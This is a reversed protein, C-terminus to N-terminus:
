FQQMALILQIKDEPAILRDAMPYLVREERLDHSNFLDEPTTPESQLMRTIAECSEWELAKTLRALIERFRAHETRMAATPGADRMGTREEIAPFLFQEEMQIHSSLGLSFESFARRVENLNCEAVAYRGASWTERLQQHNGSLFDAITRVLDPDRKTIKLRWLAPGTQLRWCDFLAGHSEQLRLLLTKPDRDSVLEISEGPRLQAIKRVVGSDMDLSIHLEEVVASANM